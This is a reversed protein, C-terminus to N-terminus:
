RWHNLITCQDAIPVGAATLNRLARVIHPPQMDRTPDNDKRVILIGAHHGQGEFLLDHLLKFDDFNHSLLVAKERIAQRLHSPDKAGSMSFDAPVLADHGERRLLKILVPNTSDDDLYLRM